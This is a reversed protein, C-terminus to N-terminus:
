YVTGEYEESEGWPDISADVGGQQKVSVQCVASKGGATATIAASGAGIARVEGSSSVTAVSPASSKWKVTKDTANEPFVTATIVLTNGTQLVMDTQSLRISTVEVVKSNLDDEKECGISCLVALICGCLYITKRKM